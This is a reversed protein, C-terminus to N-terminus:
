EAFQVKFSEIAERVRRLHDDCARKLDQEAKGTVAEYFHGTIVRFPGENTGTPEHLSFKRITRFATRACWKKVEDTQPAGAVARDCEQRAAALEAFLPNQWGPVPNLKLRLQLEPSACRLMQELREIEDKLARADDRTKRIAERSFHDESVERLLNIDQAVADRIHEAPYDEKWPNLEDVIMQVLEARTAQAEM